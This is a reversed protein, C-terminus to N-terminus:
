QLRFALQPDSRVVVTWTALDFRDEAVKWSRTGKFTVGPNVDDWGSSDGRSSSAQVDAGYETGGGDLLDIVPLEFPSVPKDGINKM